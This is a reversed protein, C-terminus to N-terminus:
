FRYLKREFDIVKGKEFLIGEGRLMKIKKSSNMKGCYGGLSGNSCVVRHCPVNPAYPNRKLANGVARYVQGKGLKRGIEKYTTVKGKPIKKCLEWVQQNFSM